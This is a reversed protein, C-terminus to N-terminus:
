LSKRAYVRGFAPRKLLKNEVAAAPMYLLTMVGGALRPLHSLIGRGVYARSAAASPLASLVFAQSCNMLTAPTVSVDSFGANSLLSVMGKRSPVSVHRPAEGFQSWRRGFLSVQFCDALPVEAVMWGGPKLISFIKEVASRADLLHEIVYYITVLDFSGDEYSVSDLDGQDAEFGLHDRVYSMLEPQIELGRVEFGAQAFRTLRDGTGCGVDLLRGSTIGTARTVSETEKRHLTRYFALEEAKGLISKFKSQEQFDPRFSYVDPYLDALESSDPQPFLVASACGPCKLLSWSGPVHGLHDRVGDLWLELPSYGCFPCRDGEFRDM